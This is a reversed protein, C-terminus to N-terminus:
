SVRMLSHLGSRKQRYEMVAQVYGGIAKPISHGEVSMMWISDDDQDWSNEGKGPFKPAEKGVIEIKTFHRVKPFWLPRKWTSTEFHMTAKYSGEPMPIVVNEFKELVQNWYAQEGLIVDAFNLHHM